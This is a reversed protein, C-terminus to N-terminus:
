RMYSCVSHSQSGCVQFLDPRMNLVTGMLLGGASRGEIAMKKPTTFRADVLHDACTIFDSFTNRKMLYKGQKEYWHRGMEGGGRIHAIAFVMGRDLYPLVKADFGPDICIGYRGRTCVPLTLYPGLSLIYTNTHTLTNTTLM